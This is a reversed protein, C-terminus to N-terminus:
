DLQIEDMEIEFPDTLIRCCSNSEAQPKCDMLSPCFVLDDQCVRIPLFTCCFDQAFVQANSSAARNLQWELIWGRLFSKLFYDLKQNGYEGFLCPVKPNMLHFDACLKKPNVTTPIKLVCLMNFYGQLFM